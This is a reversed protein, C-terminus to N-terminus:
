DWLTGDLGLVSGLWLAIIYGILSIVIALIRAWGKRPMNTDMIHYFAGGFAGAVQVIILPRIFWLKPWAPNPEDVNLLFLAMLLLAVGAGILARKPMPAADFKKVEIKESM